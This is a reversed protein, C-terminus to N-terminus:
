FGIPDDEPVAHTDAVGLGNRSAIFRVGDEFEILCSNKAGRAVVRCLQGKRLGLEPYRGGCTGWRWLHM